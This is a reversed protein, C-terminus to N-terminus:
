FEFFMINFVFALVNVSHRKGVIRISGKRHLIMLPIKRQEVLIEFNKEYINDVLGGSIPEM